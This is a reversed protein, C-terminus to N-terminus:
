LSMQEQLAKQEMPLGAIFAAADTTSGQNGYEFHEPTLMLKVFQSPTLDAVISSFSQLLQGPFEVILEAAAEVQQAGHVISPLKLFPDSVGAITSPIAYGFPLPACLPDLALGTFCYSKVVGDSLSSPLSTNSFLHWPDGFTVFGAVQSLKSSDLLAVAKHAVLAGQSWGSIVIASQPCKSVYSSVTRAMSVAGDDSGEETLYGGLTAPYASPDVGQAAFNQAGNLASALSSFM